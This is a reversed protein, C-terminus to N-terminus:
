GARILRRWSAVVDVLNALRRGARGDALPSTPAETVTAAYDELAGFKRHTLRHAAARVDVHAAPLAGGSARLLDAAYFGWACMVDTPRVWRSWAALLAARSAGAQLRETSLGTHFPTSPALAREPAAVLDFTEGSAVRHAVWHVLEDGGDREASGFPWANAEGVVCVLDDGRAVVEDPLRTWLPRPPRPKRTRMSKLRAQCDLQADVMARFPVMLARFREADGELAGLVHMLAEITSVLEVRPERRIRYDSAEPAEFAYRPLAALVPNDRVVTKAQSWTGDVVVLTVPGAPPDRLIDRAGPGPYLLVPPRAPDSLAAQFAPNEGWRMGVHLQAEPLCLTAMRATGIAVDRERPHQLIVVKTRTELRPVHRCYCVSAPRRCRGCVARPVFPEALRATYCLAGHSSV